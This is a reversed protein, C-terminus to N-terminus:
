SNFGISKQENFHVWDFNIWSYAIALRDDPSGSDRYGDNEVLKGASTAHVIDLALIRFKGRVLNGGGEIVAMRHNIIAVQLSHSRLVPM